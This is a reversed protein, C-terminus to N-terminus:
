PSPYTSKSAKFESKDLTIADPKPDLPIEKFPTWRFSVKKLGGWKLSRALVGAKSTDIFLLTDDEDESFDSDFEDADCNELISTLSVSSAESEDM